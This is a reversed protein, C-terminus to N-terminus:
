EESISRELEELNDEILLKYDLLYNLESISLQISMATTEINKILYDIQEKIDEIICIKNIVKIGRSIM